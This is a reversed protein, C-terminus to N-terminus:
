LERKCKFLTGVILTILYPIISFYKGSVFRAKYYNCWLNLKQNLNMLSKYKKIFQFLGDASLQANRTIREDSHRRIIAANNPLTVIKEGKLLAEIIISKDEGSKLKPDYGGLELFTKKRIVINSGTIGPNYTLLLKVDLQGHPNKYSKKQDDILQDLRSIVVEEGRNICAEVNELYDKEWLDDDDIFALYEGKAVEAGYNRSNSVGSFPAIKFTKIKKDTFNVEIDNDGNDIIIIEDPTRTQALVCEVTLKLLEGRNCTPIICSIKKGM